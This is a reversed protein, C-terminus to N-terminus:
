FSRVGVADSVVGDEAHESECHCQQRDDEGDNIADSPSLCRPDAEPDPHDRGAPDEEPRESSLAHDLPCGAWLDHNLGHLQYSQVHHEEYGDQREGEDPQEDVCNKVDSRRM